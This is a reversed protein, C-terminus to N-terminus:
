VFRQRLTVSLILSQVFVGPSSLFPFFLKKKFVECLRYPSSLFLSNSVVLIWTLDRWWIKCTKNFNTIRSYSRTFSTVDKNGGLADKDKQYLPFYVRFTHKRLVFVVTWGGLISYLFCVHQHRASHLCLKRWM